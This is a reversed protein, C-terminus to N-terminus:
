TTPRSCCRGSRSGTGTSRPRTPRRWCCNGSPPPPRSRPSTV